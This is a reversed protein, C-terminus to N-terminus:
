NTARHSPFPKYALGKRIRCSEYPQYLALLVATEKFHARRGRVGKRKSSKQKTVSILGCRKTTLGWNSIGLSQSFRMSIGTPLLILLQEPSYMPQSRNHADFEPNYGTWKETINMTIRFEAWMQGTAQTAQTTLLVNPYYNFIEMVRQLVIISLTMALCFNFFAKLLSTIIIMALFNFFIYSPAQWYM